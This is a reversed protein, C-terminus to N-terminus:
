RTEKLLVRYTQKRDVSQGFMSLRQDGHRCRLTDAMIHDLPIGSGPSWDPGVVRAGDRTYVVGYSSLTHSRMKAMQETLDHLSNWDSPLAGSRKAQFWLTKVAHRGDQAIAEIIIALDAGTEGEKNKKSFEVFEMRATWGDHQEAGSAAAFLAGTMTEENSYRSWQEKVKNDARVVSTRLMSVLDGPIAKWLSNDLRDPNAGHHILVSSAVREPNGRPGSEIEM